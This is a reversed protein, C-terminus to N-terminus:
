RDPRPGRVASVRTRNGYPDGNSKLSKRSIQRASKPLLPLIETILAISFGRITVTMKGAGDSELDCESHWRVEERKAFGAVDGEGRFEGDTQPHLM